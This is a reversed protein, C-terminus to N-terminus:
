AAAKPGTSAASAKSSSGPAIMDEARLSWVIRPRGGADDIYPLVSLGVFEVPTWPLGTTNEPPVPRVPAAFKVTVATDKKGAEEDADLVTAQWMLLGSDKDTAQPRSGDERKPANFDLVPEVPGAKTNKLYAGAPFVDRHQVKFRKQMAM